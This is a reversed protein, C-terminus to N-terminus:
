EKKKQQLERKKEKKEKMLRNVEEQYHEPVDLVTILATGAFIYINNGYIRIANASGYSLYLKDIYRKLSDVCDKHHLGNKYALKITRIINKGSVGCRERMRAKAHESIIM